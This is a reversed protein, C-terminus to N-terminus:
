LSFFPPPPPVPILHPIQLDTATVEVQLGQGRGQNCSKQVLVSLRAQSLPNLIQHPHPQPLFEAAAGIQGWAQSRGYAALTTRFFFFLFFGRCKLFELHVMRWSRCTKQITIHNELKGTLHGGGWIKTKNSGLASGLWSRQSSVPPCAQM